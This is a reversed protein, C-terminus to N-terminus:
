SISVLVGGSGPSFYLLVGFNTSKCYLFEVGDPNKYRKSSSHDDIENDDEKCFLLEHCPVQQRIYERKHHCCSYHLMMFMIGLIFLASATPLLLVTVVRDDKIPIMIYWTVIIVVTIIFIVFYYLTAQNASHVVNFLSSISDHNFDLCNFFVKM